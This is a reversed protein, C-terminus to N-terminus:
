AEDILYNCYDDFFKIGEEQELQDFATLGMYEYWSRDATNGVFAITAFFKFYYTSGSKVTFQLTTLGTFM